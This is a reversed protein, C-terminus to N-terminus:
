IKGLEYKLANRLGTDDIAIDKLIAETMSEKEASDKLVFDSIKTELNNLKDFIASKMMKSSFVNKDKSMAALINKVDPNDKFRKEVKAIADQFM